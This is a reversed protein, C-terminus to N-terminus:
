MHQVLSLSNIVALSEHRPLDPVLCLAGDTSLTTKYTFLLSLSAQLRAPTSLSARFCQSMYLQSLSQRLPDLPAGGKKNHRVM